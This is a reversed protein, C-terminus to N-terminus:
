FVFSSKRSAAKYGWLRQAERDVLCGQKWPPRPPWSLYSSLVWPPQFGLRSLHAEAAGGAAKTPANCPRGCPGPEALLSAAGTNGHWEWAQKRREQWFVELCAWSCGWSVTRQGPAQAHLTGRSPERGPSGSQPGYNDVQWLISLIGSCKIHGLQDM